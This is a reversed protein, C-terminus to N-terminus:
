AAEITVVTERPRSRDRTIRTTVSSVYQDSDDPIVGAHVLGDVLFKACINDPDRRRADPYNATVTITVPTEAEGAQVSLAAERVLAHWKNALAMRTRYHMGSYIPRWSPPPEPITLIM